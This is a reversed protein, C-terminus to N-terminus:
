IIAILTLIYTQSEIFNYYIDMYQIEKKLYVKRPIYVTNSIICM